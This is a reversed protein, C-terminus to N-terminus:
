KQHSDWGVSPWWLSKAHSLGSVPFKYDGHSYQWCCLGNRTLLSCYGKETKAPLGLNKFWYWYVCATSFMEETGCSICHLNFVNFFPSLRLVGLSRPIGIATEAAAQGDERVVIGWRLWHRPGNKGQNKEFVGASMEYMEDVFFTNVWTSHHNPHDTFNTPYNTPLALCLQSICSLHVQHSSIHLNLLSWVRCAVRCRQGAPSQSFM